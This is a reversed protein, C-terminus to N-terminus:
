PEPLPVDTVVLKEIKVKMVGKKQWLVINRLWNRNDVNPYDIRQHSGRSERRTLAATTVIQGCQVINMVELAKRLGLLKRLTGGGPVYLDSLSKEKIKMTSLAPRVLRKASVVFAKGSISAIKETM